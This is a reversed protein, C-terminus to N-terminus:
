EQHSPPNVQSKQTLLRQIYEGSTIGLRGSESLVQQYAAKDMRLCISVKDPACRTYLEDLGQTDKFFKSKM